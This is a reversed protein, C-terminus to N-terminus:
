FKLSLLDARASSSKLAHSTPHSVVKLRYSDKFIQDLDRAFDRAFNGPELHRYLLFLLTL